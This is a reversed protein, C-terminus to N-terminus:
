MLSLKVSLTLIEARDRDILMESFRTKKPHHYRCKHIFFLFHFVVDTGLRSQADGLLGPLCSLGSGGETM